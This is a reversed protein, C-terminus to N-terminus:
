FGAKVYSNLLRVPSEDKITVAKLPTAEFRSTLKVSKIEYTLLPTKIRSTDKEPSSNIKIADSLTPMYPKVVDIQEDSLSPKEQADSNLFAIIFTIIIFASKSLIKANM